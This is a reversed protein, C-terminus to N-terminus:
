NFSVNLEEKIENITKTDLFQVIESIRINLESLLKIKKM